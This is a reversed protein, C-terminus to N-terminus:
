LQRNPHRHAYPLAFNVLLLFTRYGQLGEYVITTDRTWSSTCAVVLMYNQRILHYSIAKYEYKLRIVRRNYSFNSFIPKFDFNCRQGQGPCDGPM